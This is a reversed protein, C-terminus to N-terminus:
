PRLVIGLSARWFHFGGFDINTNNTTSHDTLNRFYRVDGRIGVHNSFYGMVGAGASMGVDNNSISPSASTTGDVRTRLLGAGLAAYPRVGIGRTGGAPVGVILNGMVSTVSNSGFTGQNGFFSPAYGFDAEVGIIGAGMWGVDAGVNLRGNGSNNGFNVGAFPSLYTDARAIAPAAVVAIAALFILRTAIRHM